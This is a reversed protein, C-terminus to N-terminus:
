RTLTLSGSGIPNWSTGGWQDSKNTGLTHSSNTTNLIGAIRFPTYGGAKIIWTAKYPSPYYNVSTIPSPATPNLSYIVSGGTGTADFQFTLTDTGSLGIVLTRNALSEPALADQYTVLPIQYFARPLSAGDLTISSFGSQGLGQYIEGLKTWSQLDPSRYAQFVTGAPLSSNLSYDTKVGLSVSLNGVIGSCIPLNQALENFAIAAADTRTFTVANITTGNPGASIMADVVSRSAPDTVLGFITHVNNFTPQSLSGTFFFQSGNTNPGANAMSLVYPVHTLPSNFEDKFTYGPGDSGDGKPSGGQAFKFGSDNATRHIKIGNYFPETRIRGNSPDVWPRSGQALTIFNAVAQPAAAYQMVVDVNGRTTQFHALLEAQLPGALAIWLAFFRM